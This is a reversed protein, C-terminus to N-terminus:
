QEDLLSKFKLFQEDMAENSSWNEIAKIDHSHNKAVWLAQQLSQRDQWYYFASLRDKICDTVTLLRLTGSETKLEHVEKVAEDGIALPGAPFELFYNAEPHIYYRNKETFGILALATKLTSRKSHYREVVDIDHSKLHESIYTALETLSLKSVNIKSM